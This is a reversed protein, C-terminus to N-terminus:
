RNQATLRMQVRIGPQSKVFPLRSRGGGRAAFGMLVQALLVREVNVGDKDAAPLHRPPLDVDPQHVRRLLLPHPNQHRRPEPPAGLHHEALDERLTRDRGFPVADLGAPELDALHRVPPSTAGGLAVNEQVGFQDDGRQRADLVDDGM